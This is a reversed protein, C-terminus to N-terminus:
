YSKRGAFLGSRSGVGSRVMIWASDRERRATEEPGSLVRPTWSAAPCVAPEAAGAEVEAGLEAGPDVGPGAGAPLGSELM